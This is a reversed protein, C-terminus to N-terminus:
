RRVWTQFSCTYLNKTDAEHIKAEVIRWCKLDLPPFFTDCEFHAQIQTLYITNAYPLALKFIQEGGIVFLESQSLAAFDLAAQLTKFIHVKRDAVYNPQTTLVLHTRTALPADLSEYTKRGMLLLQGQTKQKFFKLDVPLHWPLRNNYGIGRKLDQAVILSIQM